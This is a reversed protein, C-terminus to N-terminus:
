IDSTIGTSSLNERKDILRAASGSSGRLKGKSNEAQKVPFRKLAECNEM